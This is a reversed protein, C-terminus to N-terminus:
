AKSRRHLAQRCSNSCTKQDSRTATFPKNCSACKRDSRAQRRAAKRETLRAQIKCLRSCVPQAIWQAYHEAGMMGPGVTRALYVTLGCNVCGSLKKWRDDFECFRRVHDRCVPKSWSGTRLVAIAEAKCEVCTTM